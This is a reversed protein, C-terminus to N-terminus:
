HGSNTTNSTSAATTPVGYMVYPTLTMKVGPGLPGTVIAVTQWTTDNLPFSERLAVNRDAVTGPASVQAGGSLLVTGAPVTTKATLVTGVPPDAASVVSLGRHVNTRALGAVGQKGEPGQPGQVGQVGQPGQPGPAGQPGQPGSVTTPQTAVAYAAVGFGALSLVSAGVVVPTVWKPITQSMPHSTPTAQSSHDAETSPKLTTMTM